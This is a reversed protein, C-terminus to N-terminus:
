SALEEPQDRRSGLASTRGDNGAAFRRLYALASVPRDLTFGLYDRLDSDFEPARDFGLRDYLARASHMFDATHFAFVPAGDTRARRQVDRALAEAVGLGRAPTDVALGRGSAWGDPWGVSQMAADPYYVVAGCIVGHLEAVLIQGKRRHRDLDLVDALYRQFIEPGLLREYQRYARAIITRVEPLDVDTGLRVRVEQMRARRHAVPM